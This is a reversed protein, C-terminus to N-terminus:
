EKIREGESDYGETELAALIARDLSGMDLRNGAPGSLLSRISLGITVWEPCLYWDDGLRGNHQTKHEKAYRLWGNLLALLGVEEGQPTTIARRHLTKWDRQTEQRTKMKGSEKKLM